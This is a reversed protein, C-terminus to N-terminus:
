WRRQPATPNTDRGQRYYNGRQINCRLCAPRLNAPDTLDGGRDLEIVHDVSFSRPHPFKLTYDIPRRCIWCPLGLAALERRARQYAGTSRPATM